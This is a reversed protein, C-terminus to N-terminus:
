KQIRRTKHGCGLHLGALFLQNVRLGAQLIGVAHAQPQHLVQLAQLSLSLRQCCLQLGVEILQVAPKNAWPLGHIHAIGSVRVLLKAQM